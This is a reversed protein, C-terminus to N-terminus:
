KECWKDVTFKERIFRLFKAGNTWRYVEFLHRLIECWKDVSISWFSAKFNRV